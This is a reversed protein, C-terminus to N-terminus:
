SRHVAARPPTRTRFHDFMGVVLLAGPIASGWLTLV